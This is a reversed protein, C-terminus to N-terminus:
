ITNAGILAGQAFPISLAPRQSNTTLHPVFMLVAGNRVAGDETMVMTTQTTGTEMAFDALIVPEPSRWYTQSGAGAATNAAFTNVYGATDATYMSVSYSRGSRGVFKLVGNKAAAM